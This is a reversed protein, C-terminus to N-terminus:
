RLRTMCESDRFFDRRRGPLLFDAAARQNPFMRRRSPNYYRPDVETDSREKVSAFQRNVLALADANEKATKRWNTVFAGYGNKVTTEMEERTKLSTDLEERLKTIKDTQAKM